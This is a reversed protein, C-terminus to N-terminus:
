EFEIKIQFPSEAYGIKKKLDEYVKNLDKYTAGGMLPNRGDVRVIININEINLEFIARDLSSQIADIIQKLEEEVPNITTEVVFYYQRNNGKFYHDIFLKFTSIDSLYLFCNRVKNEYEDITQNHETHFKKEASSIVEEREKQIDYIKKTFDMAEYTKLYKM